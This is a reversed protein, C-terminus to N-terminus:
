VLKPDGFLLGHVINKRVRCPLRKMTKTNIIILYLCFIFHNPGGCRKSGRAQKKSWCRMIDIYINNYYLKTRKGLIYVYHNIKYVEIAINRVM